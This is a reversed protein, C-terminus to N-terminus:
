LMSVCQSVCEQISLNKTDIVIDPNQPIEFPDDIGTFGKINGSRAKKYLGKVDRNECETLSTSLYVELYKGVGSIQERNYKRDEEYPAINACLVIGGSRVLLKAVYGIRRVNQSRDERSFGLGKSLNDRIEDGDLITIRTPAYIELLKEHVARTLTTKGAGSLGVFYLCCGQKSEQLIKAVSSSTFWEPIDEGNSILQRLKTGSINCTELDKMGFADCPFFGKLQPYYSINSSEVIHIGLEEHSFSKIFDQAEYLGYFSQGNDSRKVSPGAADRGVVFHTCGYNKRILAHWLAERPGAMRMAIPILSLLIPLESNDQIIAQYCRVRTSFPIDSVQTPGIAPHLLIGDASQLAYKMLALHSNHTPNRTQFGVVTNWKREHFIKKCQAPTMRLSQFNHHKINNVYVFMGGVYYSGIPPLRAVGPHAIDKTGYVLVDEDVHRQYVSEVKMQVIETDNFRLSLITDIDVPDVGISLTIPIPWVSNDSLRCNHICSSYDDKKMFNSLPAFSGNLLLELDCSEQASLNITKM